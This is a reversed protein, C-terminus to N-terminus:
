FLLFFFFCSQISICSSPPFFHLFLGVDFSLILPLQEGRFARGRERGGGAQRYFLFLLRQGNENLTCMVPCSM